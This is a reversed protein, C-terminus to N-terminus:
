NNTLDLDVTEVDLASIDCPDQCIQTVEVKGEKNEAEAEFKISKVGQGEEPFFVLQILDPLPDGLKKNIFVLELKSEGLVPNQITEDEAVREGFLPEVNFDSGEVVFTLANETELHVKVEARDDPLPRETVKGEFETGLSGGLVDDALGAYDVSANLNAAPDGWGIFNKIPPVLLITTDPDCPETRDGQYFGGSLDANLCFDGQRELFDSIPRETAESAQVFGLSLGGYLTLLFTATVILVWKTQTRGVTCGGSDFNM